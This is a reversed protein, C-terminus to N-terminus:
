EGGGCGVLFVHEVKQFIGLLRTTTNGTSIKATRIDRGLLPLKTSVVRREGITGITYM